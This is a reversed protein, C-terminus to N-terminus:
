FGFGALDLPEETELALLALFLFGVGDVSESLHTGPFGQVLIDIAYDGVTFGPKAQLADM